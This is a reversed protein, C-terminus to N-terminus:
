NVCSMKDRMRVKSTYSEPQNTFFSCTARLSPRPRLALTAFENDDRNYRLLPATPNISRALFTARLSLQASLTSTM